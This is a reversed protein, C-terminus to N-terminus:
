FTEVGFRGLLVATEALPLGMIGSYSGEIHAAFVAARGQIAYGGAKDMPEGTAVYRQADADSIERFWVRSTSIAQELRDLTAVAVATIVEHQRGSLLKLMRIAEDRTQPKGLMRGDCVVTTDAALVPRALLSRRLASYRAGLEAKTCAIRLAYVEPAEQPRSAEDVDRGRSPDERLLVVEFPVGIQKLL